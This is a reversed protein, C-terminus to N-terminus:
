TLRARSAARHRGGARSCAEQFRQWAPVATRAAPLLPPTPPPPPAAATAAPPQLCSRRPAKTVLATAAPCSRLAAEAERCGAPLMFPLLLLGARRDAGSRTCRLATRRASCTLSSIHCRRSPPSSSAPPSATMHLTVPTPHSPASPPGGPAPSARRQGNQRTRRNGPASSAPPLAQCGPRLRGEALFSKYHRNTQPPTCQMTLFRAPAAIQWPGGAGRRAAGCMAAFRARGGAAPAAPVRFYQIKWSDQQRGPPGPMLNPPPGAPSTPWGPPTTRGYLHSHWM